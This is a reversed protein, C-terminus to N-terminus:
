PISEISWANELLVTKTGTAPDYRVLDANPTDTRYFWCVLTRDELLDSCTNIEANVDEWAQITSTKFDYSYYFNKNVSHKTDPVSASLNVIIGSDLFRITALYDELGADIPMDFLQRDALADYIFFSTHDTSEILIYRGDPSVNSTLDDEVYTGM